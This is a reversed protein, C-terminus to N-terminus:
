GATCACQPRVQADHIMDGHQTDITTIPTTM